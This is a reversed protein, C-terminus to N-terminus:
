GVRRVEAMGEFSGNAFIIDNNVIFLAEYQPSSKFLHYAYNWVYTVGKPEEMQSFGAVGFWM